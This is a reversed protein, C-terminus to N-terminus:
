SSRCHDGGRTYKNIYCSPKVSTDASYCDCWGKESPLWINLLHRKIFKVKAKKEKIGVWGGAGSDQRIPDRLACM